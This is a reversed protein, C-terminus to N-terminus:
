EEIADDPCVEIDSDDDENSIGNVPNECVLNFRWWKGGSSEWATVGVATFLTNVVVWGGFAIILGIISVFILSKTKTTVEVNGQNAILNLGAVLIILVAVSPIIAVLTFDVAKKIMSFLFCLDCAKEGPGGCPVLGAAAATGAVAFLSFIVLAPIITKKM